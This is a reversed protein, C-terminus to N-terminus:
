ASGNAIGELINVAKDLLSFSLACEAWNEPTRDSIIASTLEAQMTAVLDTKDILELM